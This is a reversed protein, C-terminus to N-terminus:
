CWTKIASTKQCFTLWQEVCGMECIGAEFPVILSVVEMGPSCRWNVSAPPFRLVSPGSSPSQARHLMEPLPNTQSLLKVPALSFLLNGQSQCAFVCLPYVVNLEMVTCDWKYHNQGRPAEGLPFWTRSHDKLLWKILAAAASLSREGLCSNSSASHHTFCRFIPCSKLCM